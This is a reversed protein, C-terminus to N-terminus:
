RGDTAPRSSVDALLGIGPLAVLVSIMSGALGRRTAPSTSRKRGDAKARVWVSEAAETVPNTWQVPGNIRTDSTGNVSFETEAAHMCSDAADHSGDWEAGTWLHYPVYLIRTGCDYLNAIHWPNSSAPYSACARDHFAQQAFVAGSCGALLLVTIFPTALLLHATIARRRKM